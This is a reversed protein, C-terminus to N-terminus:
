KGQLEQLKKGAAPNGAKQSITYFQIAKDRNVDVGEGNQYIEGLEYPVFFPDEDLIKEYLEIAKLINQEAGEGKRYCSALNFYGDSEGLEAARQYYAYAKQYDQTVIEGFYYYNGLKVCAKANGHQAAMELAPIESREVEQELPQFHSARIDQYKQYEIEYEQESVSM